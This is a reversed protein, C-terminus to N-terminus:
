QQVARDAATDVVDLLQPNAACFNIAAAIRRAIPGMTPPLWFLHGEECDEVDFGGVGPEQIVRWPEKFGSSLRAPEWDAAGQNVQQSQKQDERGTPTLQSLPVEDITKELDALIAYVESVRCFGLHELKHSESNAQRCELCREHHLAGQVIRADALRKAAFMLKIFLRDREERALERRLTEPVEGAVYDRGRLVSPRHAEDDLFREDARDPRVLFPQWGVGPVDVGVADGTADPVSEAAGADLDAPVHPDGRNGENCPADVAVSDSVEARADFGDAYFEELEAPSPQETHPEPFEDAPLFSAPPLNSPNSTTNAVNRPENM